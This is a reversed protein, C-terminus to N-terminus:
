ATTCSSSIYDNRQRQLALPQSVHMSVGFYMVLSVTQMQTLLSFFYAFLSPPPTPPSSTVTLASKTSFTCVPQLHLRRGTGTFLNPTHSSCELVSWLIGTHCDTIHDSRPPSSHHLVTDLSAPVSPLSSLFSCPRVRSLAGYLSQM